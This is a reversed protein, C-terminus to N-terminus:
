NKQLISKFASEDKSFDAKFEINTAESIFPENTNLIEENKNNESNINLIESSMSKYFNNNSYINLENNNTNATTINRKIISLNNKTLNLESHEDTNSFNNPLFINIDSLAILDNNNLKNSLEINKFENLFEDYTFELPNKINIDNIDINNLFDLKEAKEEKIQENIKYNEEKLAKKLKYILDKDDNLYKIIITKILKYIENNFYLLNYDRNRYTMIRSNIINSSNIQKINNGLLLFYEFFFKEIYDIQFSYNNEEIEHLLNFYSIDVEKYNEYIIANPFHPDIKRIKALKYQDFLHILITGKLIPFFKIIFLPKPFTARLEIKKSNFLTDLKKESSKLYNEKLNLGHFVLEEIIDKRNIFQLYSSKYQKQFLEGIDFIIQKSDLDILMTTIYESNEFLILDIKKSLQKYINDFNHMLPFFFIEHFILSFLNEKDKLSTSFKLYLNQYAFFMHLLFSKREIAVLNSNFIGIFIFNSNLSFFGEIIIKSLYITKFYYSKQAKNNLESKTFHTIFKKIIERNQNTNKSNLYGYSKIDGTIKNM